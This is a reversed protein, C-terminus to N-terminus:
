QLFNVRYEKPTVATMAKFYRHFHSQDFFGCDVAVSSLDEGRRLLARAREIRCNLLYRHPTMGTAAKFQRLLTFPNAKFEGALETMSVDISAEANLRRKLREIRASVAARAEAEEGERVRSLIATVIDVLVREKEAIDGEGMLTEMAQLYRRYVVEDKLHSRAVPRFSGGEPREGTLRACWPADLYLVYYTRDGSGTPNCSHLTEPNILVLSGPRLTATEDGIRYVVEGRGIAGISFTRHMHAVYHRDSDKSYRCEAFPLDPHKWFREESMPARPDEAPARATRRRRPVWM